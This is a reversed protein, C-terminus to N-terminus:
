SGPAALFERLAETGGGVIPDGHALLLHEPELELLLRFSALLGAKVSAPDDGLLYDPVFGLPGDGQMRVLGDAFALSGHAAFHLATEEPCIAGVKCAFAGGPLEEGFGFGEVPEGQTFEHLGASHCHVTCGFSDVLTGSSRYHHRNTLLIAKPAGIRTFWALGDAPLLPDLAVREVQFYFSSVDIGIQPHRATWHFVGPSIEKV